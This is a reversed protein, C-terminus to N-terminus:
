IFCYNSAADWTISADHARATFQLFMKLFCLTNTRKVENKEKGALIKKLYTVCACLCKYRLLKKKGLLSDKWLPQHQPDCHFRIASNELTTQTTPPPPNPLFHHTGNPANSPRVRTPM